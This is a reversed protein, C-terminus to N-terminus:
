DSGEELKPPRNKKVSAIYGSKRVFKADASNSDYPAKNRM